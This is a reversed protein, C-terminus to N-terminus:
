RRRDWGPSASAAPGPPGSPFGYPPPGFPPPSGPRGQGERPPPGGPGMAYWRPAITRLRYGGDAGTFQHGRLVFGRTDYDGAADAQWVDIDTDSFSKQKDLGDTSAPVTWYPGTIHTNVAGEISDGGALRLPAFLRPPHGLSSPQDGSIWQAGLDALPGFGTATPGFEDLHIPGYVGHSLSGSFTFRDEPTLVFAGDLEAGYIDADGINQIELDPGVGNNLFGPDYSQFNKVVYYYFDGDILLRRDFFTNKSGVEYSTINEAQLDHPHRRDTPACQRFRRKGGGAVYGTSVSAYLLSNRTLDGEAEVRFNVHDGPVNINSGNDDVVGRDDHTYRM